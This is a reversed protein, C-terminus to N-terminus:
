RLLQVSGKLNYEKGEIGIATISYFYVGEPYKFNNKSSGNWYEFPNNSEFVIIGWRNYIKCNFNVISVAKFELIDNVGDSNPTFVNPFIIVSQVETLKIGDIYYYPSEIYGRNFFPTTDTKSIDFFNGITLYNEDGNADFSGSIKTWNMTDSLMRNAPNSVQPNVSIFNYDNQYLKNQSFYAGM